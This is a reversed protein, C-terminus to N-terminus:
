CLRAMRGARKQHMEVFIGFCVACNYGTEPLYLQATKQTSICYQDVYLAMGQALCLRFSGEHCYWLEIHPHYHAPYDLQTQPMHRMHFGTEGINELFIRNDDM